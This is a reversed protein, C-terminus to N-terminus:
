DRDYDGQISEVVNNVLRKIDELNEGLYLFQGKVVYGKDNVNFNFPLVGYTKGPYFLLDNGRLEDLIRRGETPPTFRINRMLWAGKSYFYRALVSPYTAGTVRANIECIRVEVKDNRECLHFDVSATGRYGQDFLWQSAIQAQDLLEKQIDKNNNLYVSPSINGQHVSDQSLIQETVDYLHVSDDKIMLQVSPSSIYRVGTVTDDLWGQVLCSGEYFLYNPINVISGDLKIKEMGIGSAGIQAKIVAQTYGKSKLKNLCSEVDTVKEAICTDFLPLYKSRLYQHLLFKNNGKRGGGASSVTKKHVCEALKELIEDTVYGDIDSAPHKILFNILSKEHSINKFQDHSIIKFEPLDLKLDIQFYKLLEHAPEKELILLNNKGHFLLNIIPILRSGYSELVGVKKRLVDTGVNNGFFLSLINAFFIVSQDWAPPIKGLKRNVLVNKM